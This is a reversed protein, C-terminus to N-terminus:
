SVERVKPLSIIFSTNKNERDYVISGSHHKLIGLSSSLGLGTGSGIAKTTFFPQFIKQEVEESIGDGCDTFVIHINGESEYNEIKIWKVTLDKIADYSNQMMCLFVQSMEKSRCDFILHPSFDELILDVGDRKLQEKILSLSRELIEGCSTPLFIEDSSEDSFDRLDSVIKQIRLCSREASDLIKMPDIKKFDSGEKILRELQSIRMKVITLPNNIEHAVGGAMEGLAAMKSNNVLHSQAHNLEKYLKELELNKAALEDTKEQLSKNFTKLKVLGIKVAILSLITPFGAAIAVFLTNNFIMLTATIMAPIQLYISLNAAINNFYLSAVVVPVFMFSFVGGSAYPGLAFIMLGVIVVM